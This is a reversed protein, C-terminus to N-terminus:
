KIALNYGIRKPSWPNYGALAGRDLLNELCSYPHNAMEKELIKGVWPNFCKRMDGANDPPNKVVPVVPSAGVTRMTKVFVSLQKDVVM